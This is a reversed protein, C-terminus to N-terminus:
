YSSWFAKLNCTCSMNILTRSDIFNAPFNYLLNSTYKSDFPMLSLRRAPVRPPVHPTGTPRHLSFALVLELLRCRRKIWLVGNQMCRSHPPGGNSLVCALWQLAFKGLTWKSEIEMKALLFISARLTALASGKISGWCSVAEVWSEEGYSWGPGVAFVM